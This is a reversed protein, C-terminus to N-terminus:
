IDSSKSKKAEKLTKQISRLSLELSHRDRLLQQISRNSIGEASLRVILKKLEPTLKGHRQPKTWLHYPNVCLPNDCKVHV